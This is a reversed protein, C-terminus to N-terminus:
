GQSRTAKIKPLAKAVLPRLEPSAETFAAVFDERMKRSWFENIHTAISVIAESGRSLVRLFDAIQGAMRALKASQEAKYAEPDHTTMLAQTM